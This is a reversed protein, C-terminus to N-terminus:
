VQGHPRLSPGKVKEAALQLRTEHLAGDSCRLAERAAAVGEALARPLGRLESALPGVARRVAAAAAAREGRAREQVGAAAGAVRARAQGEAAELAERLRKTERLLKEKRGEREAEARTGARQAAAADAHAARAEQVGAWASLM